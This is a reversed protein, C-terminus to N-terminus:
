RLILLRIYQMATWKPVSNASSNWADRLSREASTSCATRIPIVFSKMPLCTILTPNKYKSDHDADHENEWLTMLAADFQVVFKALTAKNSLYKHLFANMSEARQTTTMGAWFRSNRFVPVWKGRIEFLENFWPNNQYGLDAMLKKWRGEFEQTTISGYVVSQVKDSLTSKNPVRGWKM